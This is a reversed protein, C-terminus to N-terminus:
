PTAQASTARVDQPTTLTIGQYRQFDKTNFTLLHSIDHVKMAAVLRTDHANKGLVGLSTVMGEWEALIAPTDGLITFFNRLQDIENV